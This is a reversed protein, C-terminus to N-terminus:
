FEQKRLKEIKDQDRIQEDIRTLAMHQGFRRASRQRAQEVQADMARKEQELAEVKRGAWARFSEIMKLDTMDQVPQRLATSASQTIEGQKMALLAQTQKLRALKSLEVDKMMAAIAIMRGYGQQSM